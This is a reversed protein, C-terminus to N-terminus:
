DFARTGLGLRPVACGSFLVAMAFFLVFLLRSLRLGEIFFAPAPRFVTADARPALRLVAPAFAGFRFTPFFRAALAVRRPFRPAAFFAV